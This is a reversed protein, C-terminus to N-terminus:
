RCYDCFYDKAGEHRIKVHIKMKSNTYFKKKCENVECPITPDSHTKMHRKLDLSCYFLNGCTQCEQNKPGHRQIHMDLDKGNFFNKGCFNCLYKRVKEHVARIHINLQSKTYFRKGCEPLCLCVKRRSSAQHMTKIHSTLADKRTAFFSCFDCPFKNRFSKPIHRQIHRTIKTKFYCSYSCFDCQFRKCSQHVMKQHEPLNIVFIGCTPCQKRTKHHKISSLVAKRHARQCHKELQCQKSAEYECKECSFEKSSQKTQNEYIQQTVSNIQEFHQPPEDSFLVNQPSDQFLSQLAEIQKGKM